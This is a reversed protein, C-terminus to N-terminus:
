GKDWDSLECDQYGASGKGTDEKCLAELGM